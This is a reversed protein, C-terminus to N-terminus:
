CVIKNTCLHGEEIVIKFYMIWEVGRAVVSSFVNWNTSALLGMLSRLFSLSSILSLSVNFYVSTIVLVPIV